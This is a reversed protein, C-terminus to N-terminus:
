LKCYWTSWTKVNQFLYRIRNSYCYLRAIVWLYISSSQKWIGWALFCELLIGVVRTPPPYDKQPSPLGKLPYDKHQPYNKWPPPYDKRTPYHNALQMSPYVCVRTFANGERLKTQPRYNFLDPYSKLSIFWWYRSWFVIRCQALVVAHPLFYFRHSFLDSYNNGIPSYIVM